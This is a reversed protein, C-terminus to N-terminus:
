AAPVLVARDEMLEAISRDSLEPLLRALVTEIISYVLHKNCYEDAFLDLIDSEIASALLPEEVNSGSDDGSGTGGSSPSLHSPSSSLRDMRAGSGSTQSQHPSQARPQVSSSIQRPGVEAPVGFLRRAIPRPVLSLIGLACKRRISAVEAPSPHRQQDPSVTTAIDSPTITTGGSAATTQTASISSPAGPTPLTPTSTSTLVEGRSVSPEPKPRPNQPFLAERSAQLLNPLLAPTIVYEEINEHLFRPQIESASTFNPSFVLSYSFAMEALPTRSESALYRRWRRSPTTAGALEQDALGLNDQRRDRSSELPGSGAEEPPSPCRLRTGARCPFPRAQGIVGSCGYACLLRPSHAGTTAIAFSAGHMWWCILHDICCAHLTFGSCQRGAQGEVKKWHGGSIPRLSFRPKSGQSNAWLGDIRSDVVKPKEPERRLVGALGSWTSPTCSRDLVSGTDGVKGPGALIFYQFLALLGGLWPMRRPVDLLQSLMGFLRYDLVPRKRTGDDKASSEDVPSRLNPIVPPTSANRFLGAVIFRLTVYAFFGYQLIQWIWRSVRSQTTPSAQDNEGDTNSLLGFQQLQNPRPIEAQTAGHGRGDNDRSLMDLLKTTSDWLFWGECVKDSIQNGLILDSLIDSLLTRLCANELDETPLLVALVGDVLLRRYIEENDRQQTISDIDSTVPAPSLAPHPNLAHYIERSSPSLGSLNSQEKALRYSIIHAEVLAPIDDLALQAIDTERLRQELARTLHAILQLVENILAQDSTIKSYWSSIFEKIIMAVLAYLQRDVDNSSTLPPLLEEPAYPSTAGGYNGSQPCLVRRVLAAIAKDSSGNIQEDRGSNKLQQRNPFQSPATTTPSAPVATSKSSSTTPGAKLQSFPQLGSPISDTNM